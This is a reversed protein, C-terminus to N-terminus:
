PNNRRKNSKVCKDKFNSGESDLLSPVSVSNSMFYGSWTM